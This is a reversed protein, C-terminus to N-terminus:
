PWIAFVNIIVHCAASAQVVIQDGAVAAIVAGTIAAGPHYTLVAVDPIDQGPAWTKLNGNTVAGLATFGIEAARCAVPLTITRFEGAVFPTTTRSDYVPETRNLLEMDDELTNPADPPVPPEVIVDPPPLPPRTLRGAIQARWVDPNWHANWALAPQADFGASPDIKRGSPTAYEWHTTVQDVSWGNHALIAADVRERLEIVVDPWAGQDLAPPGCWEVGISSGNGAPAGWRYAGVGAHNARGAAVILIRPDVNNGTYRVGPPTWTGLLQSIPGPADVRGALIGNLCAQPDHGVRAMCATHHDVIGSPLFSFQPPPRGRDRWGDVEVTRAAVFPDARLADALWEAWFYAM